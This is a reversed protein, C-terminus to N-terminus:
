KYIGQRHGVFLIEIKEGSEQYVIRYPWARLCRLGDFEGKLFKGGMEGNSVAEIKRLVKKLEVKPLDKIQRVAKRSYEIKKM